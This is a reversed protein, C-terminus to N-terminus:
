YKARIDGRDHSQVQWFGLGKPNSHMISTDSSWYPGENTHGLGLAHGIEHVLIAKMRTERVQRSTFLNGVINDINPAIYIESSYVLRTSYMAVNVGDYPTMVIDDTMTNYTLALIDTISYGAIKKGWEIPDSESILYCKSYNYYEKYTDVKDHYMDWADSVDWSADWVTRAIGYLNDGNIRVDAMGRDRWYWKVHYESYYPYYPLDTDWYLPHAFAATTLLSVLLVTALLFALLRKPTKM